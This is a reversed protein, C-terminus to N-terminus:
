SNVLSKFKEFYYRNEVNNPRNLTKEVVKVYSNKKYIFRTDATFLKFGPKWSSKTQIIQIMDIRVIVPLQHDNSNVYFLYIFM